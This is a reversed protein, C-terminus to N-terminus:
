IKFSFGLYGGEHLTKKGHNTKFNVNRYGVYVNAKPIPQFILRTSFEKMNDFDSFSLVSPSYYYEGEITLRNSLHFALTGGPAIGWGDAADIDGVYGKIGIKGSIKGSRGRAYVGYDLMQGNDEHYLFSGSTVATPSIPVTVGLDASYESIALDIETALTQSSIVLACLSLAVKKM